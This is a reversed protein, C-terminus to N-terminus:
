KSALATIRLPMLPLNLPKEKEFFAEDLTLTGQVIDYGNAMNTSYNQDEFQIVLGEVTPMMFSMFSGMENFFAEYQQYIFTLDEFSYYRKLYEEKTELQVSIDCQNSNEVLDLVIVADAMRLAKENPITFRNETSVKLPIQQKQTSIKASTIQCLKGTSVHIFGFAFQLAQTDDNDLKRVHSHFTKYAVELQDAQAPFIFAVCFLIAGVISLSKQIRSKLRMNVNVSSKM